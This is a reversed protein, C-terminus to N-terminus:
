YCLLKDKLICSYNKMFFVHNYMWFALAILLLSYIVGRMNNQKMMFIAGRRCGM